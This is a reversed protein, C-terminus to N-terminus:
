QGSSCSRRTAMSISSLDYLEPVMGQLTGADASRQLHCRLCYGFHAPNVFASSSHRQMQAALRRQDQATFIAQMRKQTQEEETEWAFCETTKWLIAIEVRRKLCKRVIIWIQAVTLRWGNGRYCYALGVHHEDETAEEVKTKKVLACVALVM